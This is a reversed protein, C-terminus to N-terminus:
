LGAGTEPIIGAGITGGTGSTETIGGSVDVLGATITTIIRGGVGDEAAFIEIIVSIEGTVTTVAGDGGITVGTTKIRRSDRNTTLEAITIVAEFVM